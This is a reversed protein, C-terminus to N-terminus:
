SRSRALRRCRGVRLDDRQLGRRSLLRSGTRRARKGAPLGGFHRAGDGSQLRERGAGLVRAAGRRGRNQERVRVARARRRREAATPMVNIVIDAFQGSGGTQKKHTYRYQDVSKTIAERYAVQPAGINAEVNYERKMRDVMIELHLEGMGGIITQGTEADNRVRFTPDEGSLKVMADTMKQEDAKTKAEISQFIVPEAFNINELLIPNNEDCITDGTVTDSMGIAAVIDGAEAYDLDKRTNAHM